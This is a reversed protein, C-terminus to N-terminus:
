RPSTTTNATIIKHAKRLIAPCCQCALVVLCGDVVSNASASMASLLMPLKVLLLSRVVKPTNAQEKAAKSANWM